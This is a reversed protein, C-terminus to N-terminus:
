ECDEELARVAHWLGEARTYLKKAVSIDLMLGGEVEKLIKGWEESNEELLSVLSLIQSPVKVTQKYVRVKDLLFDVVHEFYMYTMLAKEKAKILALFTDWDEENQILDYPGTLDKTLHYSISLICKECADSIERTFDVLDSM